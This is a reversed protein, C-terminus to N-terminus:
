RSPLVGSGPCGPGTTVAISCQSDSCVPIACGCNIKDAPCSGDCSVSSCDPAESIHVSGTGKGCCDNPVCDSDQFCAPGGGSGGTAPGDLESGCGIAWGALLGFGLTVVAFWRAGRRM